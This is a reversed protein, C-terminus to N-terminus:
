ITYELNEMRSYTAPVDKEPRKFEIGFTKSYRDGGYHKIEVEESKLDPFDKRAEALLSEFYSMSSNYQLTRIVCTQSRTSYERIIKM